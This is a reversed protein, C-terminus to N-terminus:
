GHCYLAALAQFIDFYALVLYQTPSEQVTEDLFFVKENQYAPIQDSCPLNLIAHSNVEHPSSILLLDPKAKVISEQDIAIRYEFDSNMMHSDVGHFHSKMRELLHGSLTKATPLMFQHHYYLFLLKPPKQLPTALVDLAKLRNDLMIMSADIFISLLNAELSHHSAQGIKLLNEQVKALQNKQELTFLSFGQNQLAKLTAPHSFPSVFILDPKANFLKESQTLDLEQPVKNLQEPLYLHNLARLGKPLSLIEHPEALALLFTAAVFTQPIFKSFHNEITIYQSADDVISKPALTRNLTYLEEPSKEKFLRHLLYAKLKTDTSLRQINSVGKAELLQADLDWELILYMMKEKDGALANQIDERNLSSLFPFLASTELALAPSAAHRILHGNNNKHPDNKFAIFWWGLIFGLVLTYILLSSYRKKM